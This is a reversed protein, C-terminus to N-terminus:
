LEASLDQMGDVNKCGLYSFSQMQRKDSLSVFIGM